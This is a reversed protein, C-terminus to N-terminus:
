AYLVNVPWLSMMTDHLWGFDIISQYRRWLFLSVFIRPFCRHDGDRPWAIWLQGCESIVLPVTKNAPTSAM